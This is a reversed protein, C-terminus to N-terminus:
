TAATMMMEMTRSKQRPASGLTFATTGLNEPDFTTAPMAESNGAARSGARMRTTTTRSPAAADNKSEGEARSLMTFVQRSSSYAMPASTRTTLGLANAASRVAETMTIGDDGHMVTAVRSAMSAAEARPWPMM